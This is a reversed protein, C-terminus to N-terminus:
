KLKRQGAPSWPRVPGPVEELRQELAEVRLEAPKVAMPPCITSEDTAAAGFRRLVLSSFRARHSPRMGSSQARLGAFSRCFPLRCTVILELGVAFSARQVTFCPLTFGPGTPIGRSAM